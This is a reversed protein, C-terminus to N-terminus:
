GTMSEFIQLMMIQMPIANEDVSVTGELELHNRDSRWETITFPGVLWKQKETWGEYAENAEDPGLEVLTDGYLESIIFRRNM